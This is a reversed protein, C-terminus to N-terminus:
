QHEEWTPFSNRRPMPVLIPLIGGAPKRSALTSM